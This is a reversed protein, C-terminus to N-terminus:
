VRRRRFRIKSLIHEPSSNIPPFLAWFFSSFAYRIANQSVASPLADFRLKRQQGTLAPYAIGRKVGYHANAAGWRQQLDALFQRFSQDGQLLQLLPDHAYWPYCPFGTDASERLWHLAEGVRGLRAYAVGLSYAVHHDMYTGATVARLLAEARSRQGRAGLFSALEAKARAATSVSSSRTLEELMIEGRARQGQYYYARALWLDSQPRASLRQVEELLPVADAFRSDLLATVGQARRAEVRDEPSIELGARVESDVLDLLGLHYFAAALYYHPQDLSPNLELARRSEEITRDWDYEARRYVTALAQHAEALNPALELARIAEEKACKRLSEIEAGRAFRSPMEACAMALGVHALAYNKDLRLSDEFADMAARITEEKHQVLLKRGKLYLEYAAVNETYRQYVRAREAATIQVKLGRAVQRAIDDQLDLIDSHATDYSEAWIPVGDSVRVLQVRVRFREGAKLITGTLVSDAKLERGVKQPDATQNEYRLIANTPRVLIQRVNALQTIMADAIGVGLFSAQEGTGFVNFPLVALAFRQTQRNPLGRLYYGLGLILIVCITLGAFTLRQKRKAACAWEELIKQWDESRARHLKTDRKIWIDGEHVLPKGDNDFVDAKASVPRPQTAALVVLVFPYGNDTQLANFVEIHPIPDLYKGLVESVKAPDFDRLNSVPFFERARQDAGIVIFHEGRSDANALGQVLKVFDLRARLNEKAISCERKFEYKPHEIGQQVLRQVERRYEEVRESLSKARNAGKPM